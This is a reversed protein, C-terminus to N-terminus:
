ILIIKLSIGTKILWSDGGSDTAIGSYLRSTAVTCYHRQRHTHLNPGRGDAWFSSVTVVDPVYQRNFYLTKHEYFCLRAIARCGSMLAVSPHDSHKAFCRSRRSPRVLTRKVPGSSFAQSGNKEDTASPENMGRYGSGGSCAGPSPKAPILTTHRIKEPADRPDFASDSNLDLRDRGRNTSAGSRLFNRFNIGALLIPSTNEDIANLYVEFPIRGQGCVQDQYM